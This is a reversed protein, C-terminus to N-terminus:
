TNNQSLESTQRHAPTWLTAPGQTVGGTGLSCSVLGLTGEGGGPARGDLHGATGEVLRVRDVLDDGDEATEM